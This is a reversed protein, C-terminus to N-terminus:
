CNKLGIAISRSETIINLTKYIMMIYNSSSLITVYRLCRLRNGIHSKVSNYM